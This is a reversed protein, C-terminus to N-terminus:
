GACSRAAEAYLAARARYGDPTAHVGDGALDDNTFLSFALVVPDTGLSTARLIGMGEALPRGRRADTRVTWGSLLGPLLPETGQALSDGIMILTRAGTGLTSTTSGGGGSGGGARASASSSGGGSPLEDLAAGGGGGGGGRPLAPGRLRVRVEAREDDSLADSYLATIRAAAARRPVVVRLPAQWRGREDARVVRECGQTGCGASVIITKDPDAFGKVVAEARLRATGVSEAALRADARPAVIKVPTISTPLDPSAAVTEEKRESGCGIVSMAVLAAALPMM